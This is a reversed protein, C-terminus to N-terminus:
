EIKWSEYIAKAVPLDNDYQEVPSTYTWSYLTKGGDRSLIFQMQKMAHGKYTYTSVLYEGHVNKPDTPLEVEGSNLFSVDTADNTIQKKLSDIASTVNKYTRSATKAPVIQIIISSSYSRTGKEGEFIISHEGTKRYQWNGPYQITYRDAKNEFLKLATNHQETKITPEGVRLALIKWAGNEKILAYEVTTKMGDNTVLTAKVYGQHNRIEREDIDIHKNNIIAPHNVVYKKFKELNISTASENAMYSYAKNMDSARLATLQDKIVNTMPSTLVLLLSILFIFNIVVALIICGFIIFILKISSARGKSFILYKGASDTFDCCAIRILDVLTWIGLGGGTLLMLIGTKIKGVYFRHIGFAGLFLCLLLTTAASKDSKIDTQSLAAQTNAGCQPCFKTNPQLKAGCQSCCKLSTM